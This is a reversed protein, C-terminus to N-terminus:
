PKAEVVTGASYWAHLHDLVPCITQVLVDDGPSTARAGTLIATFGAAEAVPVGGVDLYHVLQGLRSLGIDQELDFSALLVEFTVRAGVHTFEAGDFDFGVSRKPRDQIRKVWVFKAKPDIFRRILWACCVRDVWLHERTVWTKGRYDKRDLRAIRRHAARPEGSQFRAELASEADVLAQETHARAKDPFFDIAGLASHDRRLAGLQRRTDAEDFKGIKQRFHDLRSMFAAYDASRDFLTLLAHQQQQGDSDFSLIQAAGGGARIDRAQEDFVQRASVGTPLLYVGDRLSAAGAAKLARWVRMRLTQNRGPLNTVLLLWRSKTKTSM